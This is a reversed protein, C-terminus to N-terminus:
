INDSCGGSPNAYVQDFISVPDQRGEGGVEGFVRGAAEADVANLHQGADAGDAVPVETSSLSPVTM